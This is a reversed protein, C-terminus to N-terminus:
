AAVSPPPSVPGQREIGINSCAPERWRAALDDPSWRSNALLDLDERQRRLEAQMFPHKLIQQEHGPDLHAFQGEAESALEGVYIDVTDRCLSAVRVVLEVLDSELLCLVVHAAAAADLAASVSPVDFDETDPTVEDILSRLRVGEAAVEANAKALHLWGLDLARRVMSPDGWGVEASFAAYNPFLREACSLAFALRGERTLNRVASRMREGDFAQEM